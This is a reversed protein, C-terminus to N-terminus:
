NKWSSRLRWASKGRPSFRSTCSCSADGRWPTPTAKPSGVSKLLNIILIASIHARRALPGYGVGIDAGVDQALCCGISKQKRAEATKKEAAAREVAEDQEAQKNKAHAYISQISDTRIREAVAYEEQFEFFDFARAIELDQETVRDEFETVNRFRRNRLQDIEKTTYSKNM